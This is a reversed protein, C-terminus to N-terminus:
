PKRVVCIQGQSWPELFVPEGVQHLAQRHEERQADHMVLAGAPRLLEIGQLACFSRARGDILVLDFQTDLTKPFNVYDEFVSPDTEAGLRWNRRNKRTNGPVADVIPEPVSPLKLHLELRPDRVHHRVKEFWAANHEISVYREIFSYKELLASTSGGAGWELVRRPAIEEILSDLQSLEAEGMWVPLSDSSLSNALASFLHRAGRAPNKLLKRVFLPSDMAM